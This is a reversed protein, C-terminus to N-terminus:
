LLSLRLYDFPAEPELQLAYTYNMRFKHEAKKHPEHKTISGFAIDGQPFSWKNFPSKMVTRDNRAGVFISMTQRAVIVNSNASAGM